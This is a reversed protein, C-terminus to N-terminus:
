TAILRFKYPLNNDAINKVYLSYSGSSPFDRGFEFISTIYNDYDSFVNVHYSDVM